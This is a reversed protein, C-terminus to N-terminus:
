MDELMACITIPQSAFGSNNRALLRSRAVPSSFLLTRLAAISCSAEELLAAATSVKAHIPRSGLADFSSRVNARAEFTARIVAWITPADREALKIQSPVGLEALIDDLDPGNWIHRWNLQSNGRM